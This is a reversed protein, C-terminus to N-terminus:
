PIYEAPIPKDTAVGWNISQIGGGTLQVFWTGNRYVALDDSGDGNYDGPVPVDGNAGWPTSSIGGTSRIIHWTFTSPRFVAVDDRNDGDYDANVPRDGAAGWVYSLIQGNDTQIYWTFNSPRYVAFDAKGNGNYDGPVPLDGAAGWVIVSVGGTSRIVYWTFNAPRYVAVDTKSDGDFDAAVPIDGAQGWNYSVISGNLSNIIYWTGTSARFVATDTKADGDYDGPTVEDTSNGWNVVVIGGGSRNQYWNADSPRYVAYDTKGDGDFDGRSRVTVPNFSCTYTGTVSITDVNWGGNAPATNNDAGFRWRLQVNQGAASAPLRAVTTVYGGSDGNWAARNSLPNNTGAGLTGNYGGTVFGGGIGVIDQFSGANISIELVGGDWGPETNYKHRFSVTAAPATIPIVPSTLDTGGGVTLPDLAFASNPATDPDTATTVFNIGNQVPTATWGAPFNPPTVGDFNETFTVTGAGIILVRSFQFLGFNSDGIFNLTLAAGCPTAPPVTFTFDRSVTAGHPITGYSASSGGQLMLSVGTATSGTNNTLPVTIVIPEGPEIAGDGDGTSDSVTYAPTQIVNPTDFAETVRANGTGTGPNQISASFGMGRIAFGAWIDKVDDGTGSALAGALIADREALFTPGLPALKMGDTVMQLWRRNGPEFGQRQVFKARVEWLASSWVEGANHVQDATGVFRPPFAGDNLNQQTGDIDAFTLPNHPLNGAGGTFAKVAKAFRRIGYYYNNFGPGGRYTDYAGTTYIGNIPDSPESLLAHGYFDSWGEGMGRSMNTTLGGANGHLRNSLGHTHEHIIVDVDFDGDFDPTPATWLYMQMRGRGGDAPTSFNANNSGSCDQAQASVRDNALGPRGFNDHQFNRAEENFGLLYLEDHYRNNVYFLNAVSANQFEIPTPAAGLAACVNPTSGAPLPTDGQNQAPNTPIGPTFNYNFVRNPSGTPKGNADIDGPQPGDRDLGAEVANGDTTNFGDTMWGNNNFTYPAENGILTVVTQPTGTPPQSGDPAIPGPTGPFPSDALKVMSNVNPYIKYTASQTQDETINKRWLMTGTHADVIVYFANVPEWILVRWAPVAVGPETPFYMKEATTAWDGSGFVVKLDTSEAANIAKEAPRIEHRVLSAASRVAAAPDGFDRSLSAYDLGPALNNIVRFMEGAPTFGAKVEGRFVPIGNIEQTLEVFALNGAPNMYDSFVKLGAIQEDSAGVLSRNETLFARLTDARKAPSAGTLMSRGLAVDTGIVEPIRIDENYDVRLAPIRARLAGEGRAFEDRIDAVRSADRGAATRFAAIKDIAGKDTRIDYNPIEPDWSVTREILGEGGRSVAGSRFASPVILAATVLALVFLVASVSHRRRSQEKVRDM